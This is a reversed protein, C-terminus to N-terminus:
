RGVSIGESDLAELGAQVDELSAIRLPSIGVDGEIFCVGGRLIDDFYAHQRLM